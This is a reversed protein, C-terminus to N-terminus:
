RRPLMRELGDLMLDLGFEFELPVGTGAVVLGAMARLGPVAAGFVEDAMIRAEEPADRMDFPFALSMMTFGYVQGEVAMFARAADQLSFGADLLISVVADLCQMRAPGPNRRSELVPGAWPHRLLAQHTSIASQRLAARWPMDRAPVAVEHMVLDAIGDLIEEKGAVHKYLSMAEVGMAQGLRRMSLGAIGEDDALRLAAALVLERSLKSRPM